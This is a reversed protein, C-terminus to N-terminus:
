PTWRICDFVPHNFFRRILSPRRQRKVAPRMAGAFKVGVHEHPRVQANFEGENRPARM